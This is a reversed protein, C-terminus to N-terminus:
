PHTALLTLTLLSSYSILLMPEPTLTIRGCKPGRVRPSNGSVESRAEIEKDTFYPYHCMVRPHKSM